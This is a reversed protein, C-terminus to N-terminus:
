MTQSRKTAKIVAKTYASRVGDEELSMLGEITTGRPSSFKERLADPTDGNELLRALSLLTQTVIKRGEARKIGQSVAGDLIGDLAVSLFVGTTGALVGGVDYLDPAVPTTKGLQSFLWNTIEMYDGPLDTIEIVSMSERFEAAINLMVRIIHYKGPWEHGEKGDIAAVLKETPTGVIVSIVLKDRLAHSVGEEGLVTNVLYPKCALIVVDAQKMGTVNEQALVQVVFKIESQPKNEFRQRLHTKLRSVSGDSNVCAIFRTFRPQTGGARTEACSDLVGDLIATGMTGVGVLMLVQKRGTSLFRTV